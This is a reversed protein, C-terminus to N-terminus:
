IENHIKNSNNIQNILKNLALQQIIKDNKFHEVIIETEAAIELTLKADRM